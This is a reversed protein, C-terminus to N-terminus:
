HFLIRENHNCIFIWISATLNEMIRSFSLEKRSLASLRQRFILNLREVHSTKGSGKGVIRRRDAPFAKAYSALGDTFFIGNKKCDESLSDRLAASGADDRKGVHCGAALGTRRGTALWIWTGNERSGAFTWMEDAEIFIKGERSVHFTKKKVEDRKKLM